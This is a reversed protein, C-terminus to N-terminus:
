EIVEGNKDYATNYHITANTAGWPANNVEGESWPVYIHTLNTCYNFCSSDITNVMGLFKVTELSTCNQFAINLIKNVNKPIVIDVLSSCKLFSARYLATVLDPISIHGLSSCGEFMSESIVTEIGKFNVETLSSQGFFMNKYPVTYGHLTAKVLQNSNNLETEIYPSTITEGSSISRIEDPMQLITMKDSKGTKERIADGIASLKDTLAM